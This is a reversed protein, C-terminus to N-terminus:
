VNEASYMEMNLKIKVYKYNLGKFLAKFVWARDVDPLLQQKKLVARKLFRRKVLIIMSSVFFSSHNGNFYHICVTRIKAQHLRFM